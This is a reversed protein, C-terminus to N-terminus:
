DDTRSALINQLRKADRRLHITKGSRVYVLGPKAGKPKKVDKIHAMHVDANGANKMKSFHVALECAELMSKPPPDVRGETRLVVHSGPYGELHFFLDNGRALRTTLYDNGEDSRGVWIELGDQTRYKKPLLRSPVDRKQVSPKGQVSGAKRGASVRQLLRRVRPHESINELAAIDPIEGLSARQVQEVVSELEGRSIELEALQQEIMKVGRSEKQYRAFCSELNAAPSLKPDIPIELIEGTRYDTAKVFEEGPRILHLVGKLMEGIHKSQEANKAEGLDEQLHVAKRDLFARERRLAQELRRVLLQGRDKRELQDYSRCITELYEEEPVDEWRDTGESPASSQPDTWPDGVKLERRTDELPRMAHLLKDQGDILYLNTRAGLISLILTFSDEEKHLDMGIQRDGERVDIRGFRMGHLHARMYECFSGPPDAKQPLDTLCLRAYDPHASVLLHLKRDSTEFSLILKQDGAQSVKRLVAGALRDQLQRAARRLERLRLM